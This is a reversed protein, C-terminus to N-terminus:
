QYTIIIEANTAGDATVVANISDATDDSTSWSVSPTGTSTFLNINYFTTAPAPYDSRETVGYSELTETAWVLEAAGTVPLSSIGTFSSVYDFSSGNSSTLTIVGELVQGESVTVLPSFYYGTSDLWWNAVSWYQGGGAPSVGWQLVPQLIADFAAPEISNFYYLLQGNNTAPAPPVAWQTTFSTIPSGTNYWNADAIWGSQERRTKTQATTNTRKAVHLVKNSADLLHVKDGSIKISGGEPIAHGSSAPRLGHPTQVLKESAAPAGLALPLLFSAAFLFSKMVSYTTIVFSIHYGESM